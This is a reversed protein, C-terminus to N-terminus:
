YLARSTLLGLPVITLLFSGWNFGSSQKSSVDVGHLLSLDTIDKIMGPDIGTKFEKDTTDTVVLTRSDVIVISQVEGNTVMTVVESYTPPTEKQGRPWFAIVLAVIAAFVLLYIIALRRNKGM